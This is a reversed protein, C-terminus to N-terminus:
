SPADLPRLQHGLSAVVRIAACAQGDSGYGIGTAVANGGYQIRGFRLGDVKHGVAAATVDEGVRELLMLRVDMAPVCDTALPALHLKAWLTRDSTASSGTGARMAGLGASRIM